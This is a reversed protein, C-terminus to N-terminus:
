AAARKRATVRVTTVEAIQTCAVIQAPTLFGKVRESNLTARESLSVTARFWSGDLEAYGSASITAKLASERKTLEAIQAKIAGLEDVATILEASITM